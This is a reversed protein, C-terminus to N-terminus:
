GGVPVRRLPTHVAGSPRLESAFLVLEHAVFEPLRWKAVVTSFTEVDGAGWPRDLRALTLHLSFPRPEPEVGLAVACREVAEAWSGLAPANGGLWAVRPRREHPFFGGDALRVTAPALAGAEAALREGLAALLTEEQEGLFRLTVHVGEARVWRAAPLRRRLETLGHSVAERVNEPIEVAVFARM